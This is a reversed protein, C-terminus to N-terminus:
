VDDDCDPCSNQKINQGPLQEIFDLSEPVDVLDRRLPSLTNAPYGVLVDHRWGQARGSGGRVAGVVSRMKDSRM